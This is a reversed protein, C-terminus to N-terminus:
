ANKPLGTECVQESREDEEITTLLVDKSTSGGRVIPWAWKLLMDVMEYYKCRDIADMVKEGSVPINKLFAFDLAQTFQVRLKGDFYAYIVRACGKNDFV